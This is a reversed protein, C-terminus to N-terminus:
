DLMEEDFTNDAAEKALIDTVKWSWKSRKKNYSIKKIYKIMENNKLQHFEVLSPPIHADNVFAFNQGTNRCIIGEEEKIFRHVFAEDGPQASFVKFLSKKKADKVMKLKFSQNIQWKIDQQILHDIYFYGDQIGKDMYIFNVVQKEENMHTVFIHQDPLTRYIIEEAKMAYPKLMERNQAAEYSSYWNEQQWDLQNQPIKWNKQKRTALLKNLEYKAEAFMKREILLPIIKNQTKCFMEDKAKTCLARCLCNFADDGDVFTSMLDWIWFDRYKKRAFLSLEEFAEQQRNARILLKIKYYPLWEYTPNKQIQLTLLEIAQELRQSTAYLEDTKILKKAYTGLITEALPSYTKELNTKDLQEKYDESEFWDFGIMDFLAFFNHDNLLESFKRVLIRSPSLNKKGNFNPKMRRARRLRLEYLSNNTNREIFANSHSCLITFEEFILNAQLEGFNVFKYVNWLVINLWKKDEENYINFRIHANLNKLCRYYQQPSQQTDKLYAYMIWFFSARYDSNSPYAQLAPSITLYAEKLKGERNLTNALLSPDKDVKNGNQQIKQQIKQM